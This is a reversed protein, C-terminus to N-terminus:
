AKSPVLATSPAPAPKADAVAKESKKIKQYAEYSKNWAKRATDAEEQLRKMESWLKGQEIRAAFEKASESPRQENWPLETKTTKATKETNM